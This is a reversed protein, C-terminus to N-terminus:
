ANKKDEHKLQYICGLSLFIFHIFVLAMYYQSTNVIEFLEYPTLLICLSTLILLFILLYKWAEKEETTEGARLLNSIGEAAYDYMRVVLCNNLWIKVM